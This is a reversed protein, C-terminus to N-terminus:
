LTGQALAKEIADPDRAAALQEDAAAAVQAAGTLIDQHAEAKAGAVVEQMQARYIMYVVGAGIAFAGLVVGGIILRNM